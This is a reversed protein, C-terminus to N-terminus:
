RHSHSPHRAVRLLRGLDRAFTVSARVSMVLRASRSCSARTTSSAASASAEEFRPRSRTAHAPMQATTGTLSSLPAFCRSDDHRLGSSRRASAVIMSSSTSSASSRPGTLKGAEEDDRDIGDRCREGRAVARADDRFARAFAMGAGDGGGRAQKDALALRAHHRHGAVNRASDGASIAAVRAACRRPATGEGDHGRMVIESRVRDDTRRRVGNRQTEALVAEERMEIRRSAM